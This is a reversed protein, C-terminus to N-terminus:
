IELLAAIVIMLHLRWEEWFHLTIFFSIYRPMQFGPTKTVEEQFLSNVAAAVLYLNRESIFL